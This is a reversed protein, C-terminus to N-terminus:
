LPLPDGASIVSIMSQWGTGIRVPSILRDTSTKPYLLLEGKANMAIVDPYSDANLSFGGDVWRM